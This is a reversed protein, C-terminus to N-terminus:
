RSAAPRHVRALMAVETRTKSLQASSMRLEDRFKRLGPLLSMCSGYSSGWVAGMMLLAATAGSVTGVMPLSVSGAAVLGPGWKAGAALAPAGALVACKRSLAWFADADSGSIGLLDEIDGKLQEVEDM